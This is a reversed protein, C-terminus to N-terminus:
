CLLLNEIVSLLHMSTSTLDPVTEFFRRGLLSVPCIGKAERFFRWTGRYM